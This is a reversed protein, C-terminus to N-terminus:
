QVRVGTPPRPANGSTSSSSVVWTFLERQSLLAGDSVRVTVTYTGPSIPVGSILGSAQSLTLGPPLGTALYTLSRGEPDSGTLQLAVLQGVITSRSGPNVVIPYQNTVAPVGGGVGASLIGGVIEARTTTNSPAVEMLTACGNLAWQQANTLGSEPCGSFAVGGIEFPPGPEPSPEDPAQKAWWVRFDHGAEGQHNTVSITIHRHPNFNTPYGADLGTDFELTIARLYEGPLAEFSVGDFTVNSRQTSYPPHYVATLAQGRNNFLFGSLTQWLGGRVNLNAQGLQGTRIYATELGRVTLNNFETTSRGNGLPAADNFFHMFDGAHGQNVALGGDFMVDGYQFRIVANTTHWWLSDEVAHAVRGEHISSMLQTFSSSWFGMAFESTSYAENGRTELNPRDIFRTTSTNATTSTDAGQFVPIRVPNGGWHPGGEASSTEWDYGERTDACVNETVVQTPSRFWFCSGKRGHPNFQSEEADEDHLPTGIKVAFNRNFVNETEAGDETVFASGEGDFVINDEILGWHSNHIAMGWKRFDRIALGKLTFQYGNAQPSVPGYLHHMHVPYRGIQNTGLHTVTSGSFTTSDPFQSTTRGLGNFAVYRWDVVARQSALTMGRRLTTATNESTFLVSRTLNGVHPLILIANTTPHHAGVHDYTTMGTLTITSGSISAITVTESQSLARVANSPFGPLSDEPLQRTDPLVLVDGAVWDAPCNEPSPAPDYPSNAGGCTLTTAGASVEAALRIFSTKPTGHIKCTGFCMLSNGFQEPDENTDLAVDQFEIVVNNAPDGPTGITLSGDEYIIIHKTEFRTGDAVTVTGHVGYCPATLTGPGWTATVGNAVVVSGAEECFDPVGKALGQAGVHLMTYARVAMSMCVLGTVVLVASALRSQIPGM